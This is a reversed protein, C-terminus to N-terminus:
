QFSGPISHVIHKYYYHNDTGEAGGKSRGLKVISTVIATDFVDCDFTREWLKILEGVARELAETSASSSVPAFLALLVAHLVAKDPIRADPFNLFEEAFVIKASSDDLESAFCLHAGFASLRYSFFFVEM